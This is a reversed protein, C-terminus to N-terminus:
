VQVTGFIEDLIDERYCNVTGFTEDTTKGIHIEKERSIKSAEYGKKRLNTLPLRINNLKCWAKITFYGTDGSNQETKAELLSLRKEQEEQKVKIEKLEQASRIILDIETTINEQGNLNNEQM